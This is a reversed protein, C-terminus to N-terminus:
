KGAPVSAITCFFLLLETVPTVGLLRDCDRMPSDPLSGRTPSQAPTNRTSVKKLGWDPSM